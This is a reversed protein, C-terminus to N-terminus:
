SLGLAREKERALRRKLIHYVDRAITEIDPSVAIEGTEDAGPEAQSTKPSTGGSTNAVSALALEPVPQSGYYGGANDRALSIDNVQIAAPDQGTEVYRSLISELSPTPRERHQSSYDVRSQETNIPEGRYFPSATMEEFYPRQR